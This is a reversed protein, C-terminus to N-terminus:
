TERALKMATEYSKRISNKSIGVGINDWPLELMNQFDRYYYQRWDYGNVKFADEWIEFNFYESWQDFRAGKKWASVIVASLTSDARAMISEIIYQKYNFRKVNAPSKKRIYEVKQRLTEPDETNLWQFPTHAQPVLPSVTVNIELSSESKVKKILEVIDKIDEMTEGPLGVMFYLKIKKWNKRSAVCAAEIIDSNKIDKNIIRKLRESATEPAFTLGGKKLKVLKDSVGKLFGKVRMSSMVVSVGLDRYSTNIEDVIDVLESHDTGSLSTLVMEDYGTSFISKGAIEMVQSKSKERYPGYIVQAQCYRCSGRCGRNIEINLRNHPIDVMAVPPATPYYENGFEDYVAIESKKKKEPVYVGKITSAESLFEKKAPNNEYIRLLEPLVAEAEGIVVLDLFESLIVPNVCLPGGGLIIPDNEKRDNRNVELGALDLMNIFNTYSLEYHLSFGIINFEKAPSKNELSFLEVGNKRMWNEMDLGPAFCRECSFGSHKDIINGVTHYGLSSMGIVYDDPFCLLIKKSNKKTKYSNWETGIYKGPKQFKILDEEWNINKKCEIM